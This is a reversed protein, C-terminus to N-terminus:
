PFVPKIQCPSMCVPLSTPMCAHIHATYFHPFVYGQVLVPAHLLAENLATLLYPMHVISHDHAWSTVMVSDYGLLVTPLRRLQMGAVFLVSPPGCSATEYLWMKFWLSTMEPIGPGIHPPMVSSVTRVDRSVPTMSVLLAYNRRLVRGCTAADLANLSECRLLDVGLGSM